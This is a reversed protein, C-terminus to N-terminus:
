RALTEILLDSVPWAGESTNSIVTHTYRLSPEHVSRFSVGADYGELHIADSDGGLWFGLGYRYRGSPLASRPRTMAAFTDPRVILGARLARWLTHVDGVTSYVGGDGAGRVPLHLANTRLGDAHLYGVATDGPLEDSRLFSTHHLGTPACVYREVLEAFPTGAAREAVLSLVVFGSNNYEFREGPASVAPHGALAPLYAEVCDLQHVPVPMAYDTISGGSSEDLYDGIGSRHALLHEVTVADAILPLDDGLLMRVRTDLSLDGQEVLRMVTLATLGKQGSAIAFRTGVANPVGHARNALGYAAEVITEDDVDIRVVGAFRSEAIVQDLAARDIM